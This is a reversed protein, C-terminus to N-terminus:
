LLCIQDGNPNTFVYENNTPNCDDEAEITLTVETVLDFPVEFLPTIAGPEFPGPMELSDSVGLSDRWSLSIPGAATELGANVVFGFLSGHNLCRDGCVAPGSFFLDVGACGPPPTIELPFEVGAEIVSCSPYDGNVCDSNTGDGWTDTADPHTASETDDCDHVGANALTLRLYGEPVSPGACMPTGQGYGDGDADPTVWYRLAEDDVVCDYDGAFDGPREANRTVCDSARYDPVSDGDCDIGWTSADDVSCGPLLEPLDEVCAEPVLDNSLSGVPVVKVGDDLSTGGDGAGGDTSDVPSGSRELVCSGEMCRRGDTCDRTSECRPLCIGADPEEADTCQYTHSASDKTACAAGSLGECDADADCSKTCVGCKCAGEGCESSQECRIAWNTESGLESKTAGCQLSCAGWIIWGLIRLTRNTKM